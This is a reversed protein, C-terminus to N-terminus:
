ELNLNMLKYVLEPYAVYGEVELYLAIKNYVQKPALNRRKFDRLNDKIITYHYLELRQNM